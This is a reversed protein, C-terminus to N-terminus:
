MNRSEESIKMLNYSKTSSVICYIPHYLIYVNFNNNNFSVEKQRYFSM